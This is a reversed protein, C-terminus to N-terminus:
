EGAGPNSNLTKLLFEDDAHRVKEVAKAIEDVRQRWTTVDFYRIDQSQRLEARLQYISEAIQIWQDRVADVHRETGPSNQFDPNIDGVNDKSKQASRVEEQIASALRGLLQHMTDIWGNPENPGGAELASKLRNLSAGIRDTKQETM